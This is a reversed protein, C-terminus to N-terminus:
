KRDYKKARRHHFDDLITEENQSFHHYLLLVRVHTRWGEISTVTKIISFNCYMNLHRSNAKQLTRQLLMTSTLKLVKECSRIFSLSSLFLFDFCSLSDTVRYMRHPNSSTNSSPTTGTSSYLWRNLHLSAIKM